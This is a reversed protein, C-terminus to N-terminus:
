LTVPEFLKDTYSVVAPIGTYYDLILMKKVLQGKINEGIMAAWVTYSRDFLFYGASASCRYQYMRVCGLKLYSRESCIRDVLLEAIKKQVAQGDSLILEVERDGRIQYLQSQSFVLDDNYRVKQGVPVFAGYRRRDVIVQKGSSHPRYGQVFLNPAIDAKSENMLVVVAFYARDPLVKRVRLTTWDAFHEFVAFASDLPSLVDVMLISTEDM